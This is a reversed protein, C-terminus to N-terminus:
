LLSLLHSMTSSFSCSWWCYLLSCSWECGSGPIYISYYQVRYLVTCYPVCYCSWKYLICVHSFTCRVRSSIQTIPCTFGCECGQFNVVQLNMRLPNIAILFHWGSTLIGDLEEGPWVSSEAVRPDLGPDLTPYPIKWSQITICMSFFFFFFFENLVSCNPPSCPNNNM